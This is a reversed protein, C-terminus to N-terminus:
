ERCIIPKESIEKELYVEVDHRDGIQDILGEKLGEEGLLSSGDALNKIKEIDLNRNDAVIKIFNDNLIKVEKMLLEKEEATLPKEQNTIDKFKGSSLQNFTIGEQQNQKSYDLYSMTIGISGVDSMASAFIIDAGTAALYAASTGYERILAVTPKQARKLAAAVEEAAVPTGGTSDIDLIIAKIKKNSEADEIGRIIDRSSVDGNEYIDDDLFGHLDILAVNCNSNNSESGPLNEDLYNDYYGTNWLIEDKIILLAAVIVLGVAVGKLIKKDREKNFLKFNM